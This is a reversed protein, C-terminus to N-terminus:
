KAESAPRVPIQVEYLQRANPTMPGHYGLLRPPGAEVWEAKHEGLWARLSAIGERFRADNTRGQLGLSVVTTEPRDEVEVPGLGKGAEGQTPSRYLFEMAAEGKAGRGDADAGAAEPDYTMVVPATMAIKRQTIHFFLPMFLRDMGEKSRNVASRYAPYRKVEIAGPKTADPWGEPLPADADKPELAKPEEAKPKRKLVTLFQEFGVQEFKAPRDGQPRFCFVLTDDGEFKYIGPSTKGKADEPGEVIKFDLTKEPKAAPDLAIEMTYSRSPAEIKLTKGEFSYTTEVGEPSTRTWTGQLAKLDRDTEDDAALTATPASALALALVVIRARDIKM